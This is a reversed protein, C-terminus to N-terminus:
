FHMLLCCSCDLQTCCSPSGQCWDQLRTQSGPALTPASQQSHPAFQLSLRAAKTLVLVSGRRGTDSIEGGKPQENKGAVKPFGADM